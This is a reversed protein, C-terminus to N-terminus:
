QNSRLFDALCVFPGPYKRNAAPSLVEGRCNLLLCEADRFAVEVIGTKPLFFYQNKGSYHNYKVGDSTLLIFDGSSKMGFGYLDLGKLELPQPLHRSFLYNGERYLSRCPTSRPHLHVPVNGVFNLWRYDGVAIHVRQPSSDPDTYLELTLPIDTDGQAHPLATIKRHTITHGQALLDRAGQAMLVKYPTESARLAIETKGDFVLWGSPATEADEQRLYAREADAPTLPCTELTRRALSYAATLLLFLRTRDEEELKTQRSLDWLSERLRKEEETALSNRALQVAQSNYGILLSSNSRYLEPSQVAYHFLQRFTAMFFVKSHYLSRPNIGAFHHMLFGAALERCRLLDRPEFHERYRMLSTIAKGNMIFQQM